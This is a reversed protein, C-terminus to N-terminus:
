PFFDKPLKPHISRMKSIHQNKQQFEVFLNCSITLKSPRAWARLWLPPKSSKDGREGLFEEIQRSFIRAAGSTKSSYIDTLFNTSHRFEKESGTADEPLFFNYSAGVKSGLGVWSLFIVLNLFKWDSMVFVWVFIL